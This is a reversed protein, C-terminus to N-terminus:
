CAHLCERSELPNLSHMPILFYNIYRMMSPGPLEARQFCIRWLPYWDKIKCTPYPHNCMHPANNNNGYLKATLPMPMPAPLTISYSRSLIVITTIRDRMIWSLIVVTTIRDRSLIVVTTIKDRSLIVIGTVSYSGRRRVNINDIKNRVRFWLGVGDGYMKLVQM